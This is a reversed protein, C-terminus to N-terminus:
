ELSWFRSLWGGENTMVADDNLSAARGRASWSGEDFKGDAGGSVLRFGDGNREYRYARGWADHVPAVLMYKGQLEERLAEVDAAAPYSGHDKAYAELATRWAGMDSMTWRAREADTPAYGGGALLSTATFLTLAFLLIKNMTM